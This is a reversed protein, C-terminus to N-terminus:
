SMFLLCSEHLLCPFLSLHALYTCTLFPSFLTNQQFYIYPVHVKYSKLNECYHNHLTRDELICRQTTWQFDVGSNLAVQRRWRRPWLILWALFWCSLLHWAFSAQKKSPKNKSGSSPPSLNRQVTPQSEISVLWSSKTFWWCLCLDQFSSIIFTVCCISNFLM